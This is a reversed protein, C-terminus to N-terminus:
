SLLELLDCATERTPNKISWGVSEYLREVAPTVNKNFMLVKDVNVGFEQPYRDKFAIGKIAYPNKQVYFTKIDDGSEIKEYKSTLELRRLLYNYVIAARVHGPTKKGFNIGNAMGEYKEYNNIGTPTAIDEVKLKLYEEYARKYAEDTKKKDRTKLMVKSVEKILPKVKKPIKISVVEVGTYKIEKEESPKFGEKDLVHLIYRKKELFLGSNCITERKFVFRPDKINCTRDAWTTIKENLETELKEAIDYADKTVTGDEKSLQKGLKRLIPAITIYVSDTDGYITCDEEIGYEKKVFRDTIDAAEKICAQGTLTVSAAADIDYFPSYKNGFTGYLSNMLIKLTYQMVDLEIIAKKHEKHKDSGETCNEIYRKHKKLDKQNQVREAYVGDLLEPCFGKIKQSYLVKAKTIALEEEQVWKAFDKHPLEYIKGNTLRVEVHTETKNIVKGIKTEPSLNCSIITNPYLSNADFSVISDRLGRQPERVFGGEYNQVDKHEFTPIVMGKDFAKLAMAGTVIAITGLAQEFTTYGMYALKRVIQLYHLTQELEALINVDQINYEVFGQWDSDAYASLDSAPVYKKNQKLEVEAIHDLKYSERKERSFKKYVNMYDLHSIGKIYWYDEFKGYKTKVNERCYLQGVPSLLKAKEDGLIVNIRNILYPIDFSESNWGSIMDPYDERWFRLFKILMDSESKCKYYTVNDPAKFDGGSKGGIGWTHFREGISDYITIVNIQDPAIKPDPFEGPSYTEIDLYYIKLPFQSFEPTSNKNGFTDILFQQEAQINYFIRKLGSNNIYKDRDWSNKFSKKALKTNFISMADANSDTEVYFYPSFPIEVSTRKGNEDWTFLKIYKRPINYYINRYM